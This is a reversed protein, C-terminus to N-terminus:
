HAFGEDGGAQQEDQGSEEVEDAVPEWELGPLKRAERM